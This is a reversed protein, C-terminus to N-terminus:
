EVIDSIKKVCKNNLWEKQKNEFIISNGDCDLYQGVKNRFIIYADGRNIQNIIEEFNNSLYQERWKTGITAGIINNLSDMKCSAADPLEGDELQMKLFQLYNGKEHANGLQLARRKGIKKTVCAMWYIHRFADLKGGNSFSDLKMKVSSENSKQLAHKTARFTKVAVFPHLFIWKYEPASITKLRDLPKAVSLSNCFFTAFFLILYKFSSVKNVMNNFLIM